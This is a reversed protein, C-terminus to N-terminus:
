GLQDYRGAHFVLPRADHHRLAVVEGLFITHDGAEVANYTRCVLQAGAEAIVPFGAVQVFPNLGLHVRRGAFYDSLDRQDESLVSVGFRKAALLTAHAHASKDISIAILAPELSVSMFANVTIGFAREPADDGSWSATGDHALMTVVTVGTAFRGLTRRFELSGFSEAQIDSATVADATSTRRDSDHERDYELTFVPASM